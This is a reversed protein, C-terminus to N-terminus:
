HQCLFAYSFVHRPICLVTNWYCSYFCPSSVCSKGRIISRLAESAPSDPVESLFPLGEDCCQATLM